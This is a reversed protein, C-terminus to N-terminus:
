EAAALLSANGGSATTDICLHRELIAYSALEASCVLPVIIGDRAALAQRYHRAQDEPGDYAVVAMGSLTKLANADLHGEVALEGWQKMVEQVAAQAGRPQLGLSNGVFYTQEGGGHRPILFENRMPRLPDAADLAIAHTRSLLDSM